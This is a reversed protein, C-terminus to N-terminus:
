YILPIEQAVALAVLLDMRHEIQFFRAVQKPKLVAQFKPFYQQKVKLEAMQASLWTNTLANAQSNSLSDAGTALKALVSWEQNRSKMLAARYADYVPWFKKATTSDMLMNAAVTQKRVDAAAARASDLQAKTIGQAHAGAAAIVSLAAGAIIRRIM